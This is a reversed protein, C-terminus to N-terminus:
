ASGITFPVLLQRAAELPPRDPPSTNAIITGLAEYAKVAHVGLRVISNAFALEARVKELERKTTALEDAARNEAEQRLRTMIPYKDM